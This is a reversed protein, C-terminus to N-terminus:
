IILAMSIRLPTTLVREYEPAGPEIRPGFAAIRLEEYSEEIGGCLNQSLIQFKDRGIGKWIM